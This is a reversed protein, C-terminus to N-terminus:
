RRSAARAALRSCRRTTAAHARQPADRFDTLLAFHLHADRNALFRVELAEVLTTSARRAASCRRCSSWRARARRSASRITWARCRGRRRRAADCGTSWRSRSSAPRRAAAGVGVPVLWGGAALALECSRGRHLLGAAAARADVARDLRRVAALPRRACARACAGDGAALAGAAASSSCRRPGADILYYGVHRAARTSRSRRETTARLAARRRARGRARAVEAERGTARADRHARGRPPLPRAHRLGDACLREAPDTACADARRQEADRRVRALGDRRALAPQRHQQQGLGARGGAGPERSCWRSSRRARNAVPAARDLTLPLALAAGRGQLRRALEAVFPTTLPPNSRAM